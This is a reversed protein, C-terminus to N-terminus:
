SKKLINVAIHLQQLVCSCSVSVKQIYTVNQTLQEALTSATGTVCCTLLYM